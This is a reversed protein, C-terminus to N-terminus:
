TIQHITTKIFCSALQVGGGTGLYLVAGIAGGTLKYFLPHSWHWSHSGHCDLTMCSCKGLFVQEWSLAKGHVVEGALGLAMQESQMAFASVLIELAAAADENVMGRAVDVDDELHGQVCL